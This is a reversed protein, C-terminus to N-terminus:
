IELIARNLPSIIQPFTLFVDKGIFMYPGALDTIGAKAPIWLKDYDLCGM